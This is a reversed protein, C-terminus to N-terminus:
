KSSFLQLLLIILLGFLFITIVDKNSDLNLNIKSFDMSMSSNYQQNNSKILYKSRCRECKSLHNDLALCVESDKVQNSEFMEKLEMYKSYMDQKSKDNSTSKDNTTSKDEFTYENSKFSEPKDSQEFMEKNFTNDTNISKDPNNNAFSSHQSDKSGWADEITCFM